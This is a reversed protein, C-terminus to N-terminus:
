ATALICDLASDSDILAAPFTPKERTIHGKLWLPLFTVLQSVAPKSIM